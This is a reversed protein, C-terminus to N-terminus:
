ANSAPHCRIRFKARYGFEEPNQPTKKSFPIPDDQLSFRHRFIKRIEQMRKEIQSWQRGNAAIRYVGGLRALECLAAWAVNPNRNKKNEFGMEAYNQPPQLQSNVAIQVKLESLFVIEIDEWRRARLRPAHGDSPTEAEDHNMVAKQAGTFEKPEPPDPPASRSANADGEAAEQSSDGGAISDVSADGPSGKGKLPDALRQVLVDLSAEPAAKQDFRLCQNASLPARPHCGGLRWNLEERLWHLKRSSLKLSIRAVIEDRADARMTQVVTTLERKGTLELTGLYTEYQKSAFTPGPPIAASLIQSALLDFRGLCYKELLDLSGTEAFSEQFMKDLGLLEGRHESSIHSVVERVQEPLQEWLQHSDHDAPFPNSNASSVASKQLPDPTSGLLKSAPTASGNRGSGLAALESRRALSRFGKLVDSVAPRVAPLCVTEYWQQIADSRGKWVSAVDELVRQEILQLHLEFLECGDRPSWLTMYERALEQFWGKALDVSSPIGCKRRSSLYNTLWGNYYKSKRHFSDLPKALAYHRTAKDAGAYFRVAEGELQHTELLALWRLELIRMTTGSLAPLDSTKWDSAGQFPITTKTSDSKRGDVNSDTKERQENAEPQDISVTAELFHCCTISHKVIDNLAGSEYDLMSGDPQKQRGHSTLTFRVFDSKRLEDFWGEESDYGLGRACKLAIASLRTRLSVDPFQWWSWQSPELKGDLSVPRCTSWMLSYDGLPLREFEERRKRWFESDVTIAQKAPEALHRRVTILGLQTPKGRHLNREPRTITVLRESRLQLLDTEDYVGPASGGGSYTIGCGGVNCGFYFEAGGNSEHGLVLVELLKWQQETLNVSDKM